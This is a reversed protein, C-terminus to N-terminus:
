QVMLFKKLQKLEFKSFRVTYAEKGIFFRLSLMENNLIKDGLENSIDFDAIHRINNNTNSTVSITSNEQEVDYDIDHYADYSSKYNYFNLDYIQQGMRFSIAKGLDGDEATSFVLLRASIKVKDSQSISKYYNIKIQVHGGFDRKANYIQTLKFKRLNEFEDFERYIRSPICAYIQTLLIFFVIKQM